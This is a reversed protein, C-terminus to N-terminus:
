GPVLMFRLWIPRNRSALRHAFAQAPGVDMRILRRHREPNWTKVDLLVLNIVELEEDTLRGGLYGNADLAPHIGMWQTAKFLKLVFRHQM